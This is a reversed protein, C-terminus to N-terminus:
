WEEVEEDQTEKPYTRYTVGKRRTLLLAVVLGVVILVVAAAVSVSYVLVSDSPALTVTTTVTPTSGGVTQPVVSSLGITYQCEGAYVRIGAGEAWVRMVSNFGGGAATVM